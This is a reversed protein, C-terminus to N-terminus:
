QVTLNSPAPPASPNTQTPRDTAVTLNDIWITQNAPSTGMYPALIVQNFLMNPHSGTRFAVNSLNILLTGDLWFRLVGDSLGKGNSDISNLRYYAELQHWDGMYNPGSTTSFSVPSNWTRMNTHQNTGTGYCSVFSQTTDLLGNCGQSARSETLRTLDINIQNEDINLADQLELDPQYKNVTGENVYATLHTRALGSFDGDETTLLYFIHTGKGTWSSSHKIWFGLYVSNTPTFKHRKPHGGTCNSAGLAWHCEFSGVSGPIHETTSIAGGGNSADYWGRSSLAADDFTEQFLPAREATAMGLFASSFFALAAVRTYAVM